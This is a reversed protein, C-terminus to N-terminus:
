RMSPDESAGVVVVLTIGSIGGWLSDSSSSTENQRLKHFPATLPGDPMIQFM